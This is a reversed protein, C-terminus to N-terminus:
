GRKTRRYEGPPEGTERKFVASLREKHSYGAKPTIQELTMDTERLLQKVREIQTATIQEHPTRGLEERFRRELQRRSLSTFECVDNVNIGDCAHQRIFRCVRALEVDEVAVVQTSLRECVSQPPVYEIEETPLTGVLMQNLIEAARFGVREANPRVSSLTPDCLLCIADDDDVGIIGIDDPVAMELTRCANVVQQGRIDNCAFLGTPRKLSLLWESLPKFDVMGAKEIATLTDNPKGPTEYVSLEGNAKTVCKRFHHLRADSYSAFRFGCFAFRRFGREWLHEFALEAVQQNDTEVQPIGSFKRNCRVDVIPVGLARLPKVTHTDVRAIVGDIRTNSMWEPMESDLTMEQHLLSWDAQTRAYLSVGRLLERGYARSAEVLLAIRPRSKQRM